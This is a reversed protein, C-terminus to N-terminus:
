GRIAGFYHPESTTTNSYHVHYGCISCTGEGTVTHLTVSYSYFNCVEQDTVTETVYISPGTYGGHTCPCYTLYYNYYTSSWLVDAKAEKSPTIALSGSIVISVCLLISLFRKM